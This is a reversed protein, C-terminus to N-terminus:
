HPNGHNGQNGGKGKGSGEIEGFITMDTAKAAKCQTPDGKYQGNDFPAEEEDGGENFYALADVCNTGDELEPNGEACAEASCCFGYEAYVAGGAAANLAAATCQRALQRGIDGEVAISLAESTSDQSGADTTTLEVGCVTVPLLGEGNITNPHTCWYGATRTFGGNEPECQASVEETLTKIGCDDDVECLEGSFACSGEICEDAEPEGTNPNLVQCTVTANNCAAVDHVQDAFTIVCTDGPALDSPCDDTLVNDGTPQVPCIGDEPDDAVSCRLDTQGTALPNEVTVVYDFVNTEGEQLLCEKSATMDPTVCQLNVSDSDSATEGDFIACDCDVSVENLGETDADCLLGLESSDIEVVAGDVIPDLDINLGLKPDLVNCNNLTVNPVEPDDGENRIAFRYLVSQNDVTVGVGENKLGEGACTVGGDVSVCKDITVGCERITVLQEPNAFCGVDGAPLHVDCLDLNRSGPPNFPDGVMPTPTAFQVGPDLNIPCHIDTYPISDGPDLTVGSAIELCDTGPGETPDTPAYPTGDAQPCCFRVYVNEAQCADGASNDNAVTAECITETGNQVISPDCNGTLTVRNATCTPPVQASVVGSGLTLVGALLPVLARLCRRSAKNISIYM